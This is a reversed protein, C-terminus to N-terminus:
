HNNNILSFVSSIILQIGIALVIFGMIKSLSKLGAQGMYSIIKPALKLIIFISISAM